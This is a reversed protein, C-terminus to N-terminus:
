HIRPVLHAGDGGEQGREDHEREGPRRGGAGEGDREPVADGHAGGAPAGLGIGPREAAVLAAARDEEICARQRGVAAAEVEEVRGCARLDHGDVRREAVGLCASRGSEARVGEGRDRAVRQAAAGGARRRIRDRRAAGVPELHADVVLAVRRDRQGRRAGVVDDEGTAPDREGVRRRGAERGVARGAHLGAERGGDLPLDPIGLAARGRDGVRDVAARADPQM